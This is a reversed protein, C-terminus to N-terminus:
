LPGRLSLGPTQAMPAEGSSWGESLSPVKLLSPTALRWKSSISSSSSASISRQTVRQPAVLELNNTRVGAVM